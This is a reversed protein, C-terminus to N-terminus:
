SLASLTRNVTKDALTRKGVTRNAEIIEKFSLGEFASIDSARLPYQLLGQKWDRVSRRTIRSIHSATGVFGAFLEIDRKAQDWTDAKASPFRERKFREFLDM